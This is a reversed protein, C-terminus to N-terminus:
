GIRWPINKEASLFETMAVAGVRPVRALTEDVVPREPVRALDLLAEHRGIMRSKDRHNALVNRGQTLLVAMFGSSRRPRSPLNANQISVLAAVCKWPGAIISRPVIVALNSSLSAPPNRSGAEHIFGMYLNGALVLQVTQNGKSPSWGPPLTLRFSPYEATIGRPSPWSFEDSFIAHEYPLRNTGTSSQALLSKPIWRTGADEYRKQDLFILQSPVIAFQEFYVRMREEAPVEILPEASGARWNTLSALILGEDERRSTTRYAITRMARPVLVTMGPALQMGPFWKPDPQSYRIDLEKFFSSIRPWCCSLAKHASCALPDYYAACHPPNALYKRLFHTEPIAVSRDPFAHTQRVAENLDKFTYTTDYSPVSALTRDLVLVKTSSKYVGEMNKIARKKAEGYVSSKGKAVPICLTDMWFPVPGKRNPFQKDVLNQIREIQCRPLANADANGLGDAWVHSIAVFRQGLLQRVPVPFLRLQGKGYVAMPTSRCSSLQSQDRMITEFLKSRAPEESDFGDFGLFDCGHCDQHHQTRYTDPDVQYAECRDASCKSHDLNHRRDLQACLLLACHDGEVLDSIIKVERPCWCDELFLQPSLRAPLANFPVTFTVPADLPVARYIFFAATQLTTCLVLVSDWVAADIGRSLPGLNRLTTAATDLVRWIKAASAKAHERGETWLHRKNHLVQMPGPIPTTARRAVHIASVVAQGAVSGIKDGVERATARHKSSDLCGPYEHSASVIWAAIYDRLYKTTITAHGNADRSVFDDRLLQINYVKFVEVLTGFFLCSQFYRSSLWGTQLDHLKAFEFDYRGPFAEVSDGHYAFRADGLFPVEVRFGSREQLQPLHDM